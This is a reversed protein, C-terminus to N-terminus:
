SSSEAEAEAPTRASISLAHIPGRMEERLAGFVLRHRQIRSKGEFGASTITASWHDEPGTLDQLEVNADPLVTRIKAVILERKMVGPVYCSLVHRRSGEPRALRAVTM